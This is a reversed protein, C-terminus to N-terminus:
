RQESKISVAPSAPTTPVQQQLKEQRLRSELDKLEQERKLLEQRKQAIEEQVRQEIARIKEEEARLQEERLLYSSSVVNDNMQPSMPHQMGDPSMSGSPMDRSLKETRYNEYLFYSTSDKLDMTHSRLLVDRVLPFDSVEPDEVDVYGWPYERALVTVGGPKKLISTGGVIAFPLANKISPNLTTSENDLEESDGHGEDEEEEEEDEEPFRYIPINHHEIDQMILLKNLTLEDSTLSDAKSIVPIVNVRSGMLKMFEVDLERLGHGTPVIFYVLAHVRNDIFRPNRRIRTEEALVDDFQKAIFKSIEEFCTTNDLNDGFGPTDIFKITLPGNGEDPLEEIIPDFKIGPESHCMSPDFEDDDADEQDVDRGCLSNIFTTKGSGTPGCLMLTFRNGKKQTRKQRLLAASSTRSM